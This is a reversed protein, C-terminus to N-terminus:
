DLSYATREPLGSLRRLRNDAELLQGHNGIDYWRGDFRYGYVPYRRCLWHMFSGANDAGHGQGLYSELLRAHRAPLLYVLTAALTSVPDSPKEAFSVLLDRDDTEVIGYHTALELDGVDIKQGAFAIGFGQEGRQSEM